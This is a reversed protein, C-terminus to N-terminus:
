IGDRDPLRMDLLLCDPAAQECVALAEAATAAEVLDYSDDEVLLHRYVHRDEANDDVILVTPMQPRIDLPILVSGKSAPVQIRYQVSFHASSSRAAM